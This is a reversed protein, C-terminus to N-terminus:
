EGMELLADFAINRAWEAICKADEIRLKQCPEYQVLAAFMREHVKAAAVQRRKLLDPASM